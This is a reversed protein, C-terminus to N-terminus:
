LGLFNYTASGVASQSWGSRVAIAKITTTGIVMIPGNYQNSSTTPTSGDTTYYITVGPSASSITV